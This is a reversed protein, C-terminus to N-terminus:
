QSEARKIVELVAKRLVEGKTLGLKACAASLKDAMTRTMKVSVSTMHERDWKANARKRAETIPM